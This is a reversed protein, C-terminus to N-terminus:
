VVDDEILAVLGVARPCMEAQTLCIANKQDRAGILAHRQMGELSAIELALHAGRGFKEQNMGAPPRALAYRLMDFQAAIKEARMMVYPRAIGGIQLPEGPENGTRRHVDHESAAARAAKGM